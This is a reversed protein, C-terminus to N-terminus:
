NQGKLLHEYLENWQKAVAKFGHHEDCWKKTNISWLNNQIMQVVVTATREANAVSRNLVPCGDLKGKAQSIAIPSLWCVVPIGWQMAELASNGYFGVRFQDFYVTARKKAACSEEHTIGSLIVTECRMRSKLIGFVEKVFVTAKTTPNSPIHVFVPNDTKKWINPKDDSDIPHPTWIDSYEPYLLDTEFSTKLHARGYDANCYKGRGTHEKKRFFSGSTTLVIPKDPIQLGLYGDQPPWDGKFHLIDANNVFEQALERNQSVAINYPHKFGNLSPESFLCVNHSTHRKLAHFLKYASGAYDIESLMAIRM